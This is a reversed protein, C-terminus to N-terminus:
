SSPKPTEMQHSHTFMDTNGLLICEWLNGAALVTNRDSVCKKFDSLLYSFLHKM